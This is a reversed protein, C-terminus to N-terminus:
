RKEGGTEPKPKPAVQHNMDRWKGPEVPRYPTYGQIVPRYKTQPVSANPDAAGPLAMVPLALASSLLLTLLTVAEPRATLRFLMAATRRFFM